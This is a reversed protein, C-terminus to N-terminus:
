VAGCQRLYGSIGSGGAVLVKGNPLLTATHDVRTTALGGTASWAGSAPDYLEATSLYGGAADNYGGAVLVKGNPLLTATHDYRAVALSGTGNWTGSAPDYM